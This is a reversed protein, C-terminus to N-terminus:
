LTLLDDDYYIAYVFILWKTVQKPVALYIGPFMETPMRTMTMTM